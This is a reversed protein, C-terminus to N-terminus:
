QAFGLQQLRLWADNVEQESGMLVTRAAMSIEAATHTMGNSILGEIMELLRYTQLNTM